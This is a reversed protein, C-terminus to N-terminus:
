PRLSAVRLAFCWPHGFNRRALDSNRRLDLPALGHFAVPSYSLQLLQQQVFDAALASLGRLVVDYHWCSLVHAAILPQSM